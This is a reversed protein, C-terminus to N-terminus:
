RRIIRCGEPFADDGKQANRPVTVSTLSSCGAFARGGISKVSSPINVSRLNKCRAFAQKGISTVSSPINVSTLSSCRWFANEGISTVFSPIKVSSANGTYKLLTKFDDSLKFGQQEAQRRQEEIRISETQSSSMVLGLIVVACLIIAFIALLKSRKTAKAKARREAEAKARHEAELQAIRKAEEEAWGEAEYKETLETEYNALHEAEKESWGNAELKAKLKAKEQEKREAEEKTKREAEAKAKCEAEKRQKDEEILNELGNEARRLFIVARAYDDKKMAKEAAKLSCDTESTIAIKQEEVCKSLYEVKAALEYYETEVDASVEPPMVPEEKKEVVESKVPEVSGEMAEAFATCTPFRDQPLKNLAKAVADAIAESVGTLRDPIEKIACERLIDKDSSDFPPTGSFIEYVTAALAYQDAAERASRGRWQEPAIYPMTGSTDRDQVNTVRSLSSHIQAALGFDLIKVDGFKDVMINAPKIDKHVISKKHAYDLASAIQKVLKIVLAETFENENRKRRLFCRLEEGDVFEMVLFCNGAEDSELTNYSAIHPHHLNYVLQFNRRIEDMEWGSQVLEPSITKLAVDIGSKRDYCRYVIGMGGKGLEGRVEYRGAILDNVQWGDAKGRPPTVMTKLDSISDYRLDAM